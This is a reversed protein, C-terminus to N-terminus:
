GLGKATMADPHIVRALLEVGDAYRAGPRAFYANADVPVVRASTRTRVGEALKTAEALGYGCPAMIILEPDWARVADWTIRVSDAGARGLTDEGGAIEIMEPVWHGACFLPDAWELFAVRRRDLSRVSARVEDLRQHNHAVLARAGDIRGVARGVELINQDIDGLTRPSLYVVEPPAPLSRVARSLETGSPACVQCLDQSFIIDPELTALLSEDVLYLSDGSGLQRAVAADVEAQSLGTLELAPRSVIPLRQVDVPFDCEHSRGVLESGAGLAYIIESAAPLLSVIRPM